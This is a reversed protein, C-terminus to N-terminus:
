STFLFPLAFRRQQENMKLLRLRGRVFHITTAIPCTERGFRSVSVIGRHKGFLCVVCILFHTDILCTSLVVSVKGVFSLRGDQSALPVPGNKPRFLGTGLWGLFFDGGNGV